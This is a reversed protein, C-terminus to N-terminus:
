EEGVLDSLSFEIKVVESEPDRVRLYYGNMFEYSNGSYMSRIEYMRDRGAEDVITIFRKEPPEPNYM